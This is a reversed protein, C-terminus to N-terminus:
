FETEEIVHYEGSDDRKQFSVKIYTRGNRDQMGLAPLRRQYFADASKASLAKAIGRTGDDLTTVIQFPANATLHELEM